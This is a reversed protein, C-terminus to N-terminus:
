TDSCLPVDPRSVKRLRHELSKNEDRFLMYLSQCRIASPATRAVAGLAICNALSVISSKTSDLSCLKCKRQNDALDMMGVTHHLTYFLHDFDATGVHGEIM